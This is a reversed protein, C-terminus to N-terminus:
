IRLTVTTQVIRTEYITISGMLALVKAGELFNQDVILRLM